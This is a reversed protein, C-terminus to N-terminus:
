ARKDSYKDMLYRLFTIAEYKMDELKPGNNYFLLNLENAVKKGDADVYYLLSESIKTSLKALSVGVCYVNEHKETIEGNEDRESVDSVYNTYSLMGKGFGEDMIYIYDERLTELRTIEDEIGRAIQAKTKYRHKNNPGTVNRARFCAEAEARDIESTRWEQGFFRILYKECDAMFTDAEHFMTLKEFGYVGEDQIGIHMINELPTKTPNENKDPKSYNAVFMVSGEGSSRRATYSASSNSDSSFSEVKIKLTDYSVIKKVADELVVFDEGGNLGGYAHIIFKQARTPKTRVMTFFMVLAFVAAAIAVLIKLWDYSLLNGLRQKNVRADM